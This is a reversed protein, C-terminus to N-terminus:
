AGVRHLRRRELGRSAGRRWRRWLLTLRYREVLRSWPYGPHRGVQRRACIITTWWAVSRSTVFSRAM